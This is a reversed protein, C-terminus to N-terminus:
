CLVLVHPYLCYEEVSECHSMQPRSSPEMMDTTAGAPSSVLILSGCAISLMVPADTESNAPGGAAAEQTKRHRLKSSSPAVAWATPSADARKQWPASQTDVLPRLLSVGKKHSNSGVFTDLRRGGRWTEVELCRPQSVVSRCHM